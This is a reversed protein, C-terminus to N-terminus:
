ERDRNEWSSACTITKTEKSMTALLTNQYGMTNVVGKLIGSFFVESNKHKPKVKGM